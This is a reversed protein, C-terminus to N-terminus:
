DAPEGAVAVLERIYMTCSADGAHVCSEHEVHLEHGYWEGGGLILGEALACLKRRSTYTVRLGGDVPAAAFGPVEADPYIKRVEPHIIDDLSTVLQQRGDIGELIHPNRRALHKFGLRGALTLTAEPSLDAASAIAAVIAGLDTDPYTALSTYSGDVGSAVIVDDWADASMAETVVDEVVNFLIGKM